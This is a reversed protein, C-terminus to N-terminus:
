PGEVTVTVSDQAIATADDDNAYLGVEVVREGPALPGVETTQETLPGSAPVGDVTVHWHGAGAILEDNPGLELDIGGVEVELTFTAAVTDGDAPLTIEISPAEETAEDEGGCASLCALTLLVLAMRHLTTTM